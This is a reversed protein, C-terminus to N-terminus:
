WWASCAGQACTSRSRSTRAASPLRHQEDVVIVDIPTHDDAGARAAGHDGASGRWSVEAGSGCGQGREGVDDEGPRAHAIRRLATGRSPVRLGRGQVRTHDGPLGLGGDAAAADPLPDASRGSWPRWRTRCGNAAAGAAPLVLCCTRCSAKVRGGGGSWCMCRVAPCAPEFATADAADLGVVRQGALEEIVEARRAPATGNRRLRPLFVASRWWWSMPWGSAWATACILVSRFHGYRLRSRSVSSDRLRRCM